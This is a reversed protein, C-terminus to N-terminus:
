VHFAIFLHSAKKGSMYVVGGGFLLFGLGLYCCYYYYYYVARESVRPVEEELIRERETKINRKRPLPSIEKGEDDNIM